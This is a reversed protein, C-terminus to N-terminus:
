RELNHRQSLACEHCVAMYVVEAVEITMDPHAEPHLCPAEGTVCAIDEIRGCYRCLAHHHNDHVELEYRAPSGPLDLKRVLEAAVLSNIVVYVSQITIAPLDSRVDDLIAEVTGHPEREIAELVALRQKTARLGADRLQTRWDSPTPEDSKVAISRDGAGPKAKM